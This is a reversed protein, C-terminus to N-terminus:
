QSHRFSLRRRSLTVPYFNGSRLYSEVTVAILMPFHWRKHTQARSPHVRTSNANWPVSVHCDNFKVNTKILKGVFDAPGQQERCLGNNGCYGNPDPNNSMHELEKRTKTGGHFALCDPRLLQSFPTILPSPSFHVLVSLYLLAMAHLLSRLHEIYFWEGAADGSAGHKDARM